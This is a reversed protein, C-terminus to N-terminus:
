TEKLHEFIKVGKMFAIREKRHECPVAVRGTSLWIFGTLMKVISKKRLTVNIKAGVTRTYKGFQTSIRETNKFIIAASPCVFV